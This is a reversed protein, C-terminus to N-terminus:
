DFKKLLISTNTGGFGFSNTLAYDTICDQSELPVLNIKSDIPNELNITPPAIQNKLSLATMILEMSGAAGLLHGMSSKISSMKLSKNNSFLEKVANLEIEDGIQTSTGHANVYGVRDAIVGGDRLAQFMASKAARGEPHPSTIHYADGSLGYGVIEAYIKAGRALAHELEEVVVIGSGESMVFGSRDQDWPRSAKEPADNYKVTLARAAAFGSIGLPCVSAEAAGAIMVKADGYKILRVADGIAHAGSACATVVSHNPGQFGYKIAIHGSLMNILCSPIFFPNVAKAGGQELAIANKAIAQLGGIGSGAIVGTQQLEEENQPNWGSDKIAEAAAVMGYFIFPDMKKQDKPSIFDDIDFQPTKLDVEGAIQVPLASADFKQIKRIGSEGAILREWIDPVKNGLGTIAGVGTIVVRKM